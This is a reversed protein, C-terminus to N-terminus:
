HVTPSPAADPEQPAADQKSAALRMVKRLFSPDFPKTDYDAAGLEFCVNRTFQDEVASLVIVKLDRTEPDKKLSALLDRGDVHQHLDLIIVDPHHTRALQLVDSHTDAIVGLGLREAERTLARVVLPEDDSVLIIPKRPM